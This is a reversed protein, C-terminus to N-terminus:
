LLLVGGWRCIGSSLVGAWRCPVLGSLPFQYQQPVPGPRMPVVSRVVHPLRPRESSGHHSM